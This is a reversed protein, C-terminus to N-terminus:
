HGAYRRGARAVFYGVQFSLLLTILPRVTAVERLWAAVSAFIQTVGAVSQDVVPSIPGLSQKNLKQSLRYFKEDVAM